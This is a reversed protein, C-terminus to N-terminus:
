NVRVVRYQRTRQDAQNTVYYPYPVITMKQVIDKVNVYLIIIIGTPKSMMEVYIKKSETVVRKVQM